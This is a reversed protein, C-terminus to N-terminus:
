AFHTPPPNLVIRFSRDLFFVAPRQVFIFVIFTSDVSRLSKEFVQELTGFFQKKLDCDGNKPLTTKMIQSGGGGGGGGGPGGGGLLSQEGFVFESTGLIETFGIYTGYGGGWGVGGGSKIRHSFPSVCECEVYSYLFPPLLM